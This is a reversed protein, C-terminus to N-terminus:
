IANIVLKKEQMTFWGPRTNNLYYMAFIVKEM